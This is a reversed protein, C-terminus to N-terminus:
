ISQGVVPAVREVEVNAGEAQMAGLLQLLLMGLMAQEQESPAAAATGDPMMPQLELIIVPMENIEAAEPAAHASGWLLAVSAAIAAVAKKSVM